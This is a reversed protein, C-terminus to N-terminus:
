ESGAALHLAFVIERGVKGCGEPELAVDLLHKPPANVPRRSNENNARRAAYAGDLHAANVGVQKVNENRQQQQQQKGYSDQYKPMSHDPLPTNSHPCRELVGVRWCELVRAIFRSGTAVRACAINSNNSAGTSLPRMLVQFAVSWFRRPGGM